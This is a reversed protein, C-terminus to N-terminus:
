RCLLYISLMRPQPSINIHVGASALVEKIDSEVEMLTAAPSPWDTGNLMVPKWLGRTIEASFFSVIAGISAPLFDVLDRLGAIM